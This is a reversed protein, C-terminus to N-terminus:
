GDALANALPANAASPAAAAALASPNNVVLLQILARPFQGPILASSSLDADLATALTTLLPVQNVPELPAGMRDFVWGFYAYSVDVDNVGEGTGLYFGIHWEGPE